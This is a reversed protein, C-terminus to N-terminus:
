KEILDVTEKWLRGFAATGPDRPRPLGVNTVAKIRGPRGTLVAIRDALMMSERINHTIFVITKRIKQWIQVLEIRLRRRMQADLSGFPEDMLLVSPNMALARAMAVRQKMGGSLQHPYTNEFGDLGVLSIMKMVTEKRDKVGKLYLGFEINKFVTKWPLLQDFEQFVVFRDPGPTKVPKGNVLVEGEYPEFGAIIRLLTTKGCGSPGLVCLFENEYVDLNINELAKVPPSTYYIKSLNRIKIKANKM